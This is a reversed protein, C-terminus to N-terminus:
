ESRLAALLPSRKVAIVALLSAALGSVFVLLLLGLLSGAIPMGSRAGLAPAIALLAAVLGTALGSVLLLLNEALVIRNLHDTRYGVARLLALERRRELVNRLLVPGGSM